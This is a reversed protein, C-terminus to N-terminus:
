LDKLELLVASILKMRDFLSEVIAYEKKTHNFEGQVGFSCLVPVGAASIYSADSSGGLYRSRVEPLGYKEATKRVLEFFNLVSSRTEFAGMLAETECKLSTGEIDPTACLMRIAHEVREKESNTKFRIDLEAAAQGPIANSVTGGSILTVAVTTGATLDTLDRFRIIKYALEEIANRGATFDAGAHADVGAATIKMGLRGKRGICLAQDPLGTETNFTCLSGRVAETIILGGRSGKHGSEEDGSFVAKLPFDCGGISGFARLVALAIVIGGKMDLVGPGYAKGDEIRFPSDGFSGRRHVTDFHGSFVVAPEDMTSATTGIVSDGNAGASVTQTDMGSERFLQAIKAALQDVDAKDETFSEHNVLDRWVSILEDRHTDYYRCLKAYRDDM